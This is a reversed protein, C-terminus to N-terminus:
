AWASVGSRRAYAFQTDETAMRFSGGAGSSAALYIAGTPITYTVASWTGNKAYRLTRASLDIEMGIVDNVAFTGLGPATTTQSGNTYALGNNPDLGIGNGSGALWTGALVASANALGVSSSVTSLVVYEAQLKGSTRSSTSRAGQNSGSSVTMRRNGESFTIAGPAPTSSPDFTTLPASQTQASYVNSWPGPGLANYGRVEFTSTLGPGPATVVRSTPMATAAGGNIRYEHGAGIVTYNLLVTTMSQAVAVLDTIASPVTATRPAIGHQALSTGMIVATAAACKNGANTEHIYDTNVAEAAVWAGPSSASELVGTPDWYVPKARIAANYSRREADWSYPTVIGGQTFPDITSWLVPLGISDATAQNYALIQAGTRSKPFDNIGLALELYTAGGAALLARRRSSQSAVSFDAATEGRGSVNVYPVGAEGFLRASQGGDGRSTNPVDYIGDGRSNRVIGAVPANSLGRILCPGYWTDAFTQVPAINLATATAATFEFRDGNALDSKYQSYIVGNPFNARLRPYIRTFALADINAVAKFYGGDPATLATTGLLADLMNVVVPNGTTRDTYTIQAAGTAAVGPAIELDGGYTAGAAVDIRWNPWWVEIQGNLNVFMVHQTEAKAWLYSAGTTQPLSVRNTIQRLTAPIVVGGTKGRGLSRVQALRLRSLGLGGAM